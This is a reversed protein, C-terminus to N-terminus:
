LKGSNDRLCVFVPNMKQILQLYQQNNRREEGEEEREEEEREGVRGTWCRHHLQHDEVKKENHHNNKIQNM